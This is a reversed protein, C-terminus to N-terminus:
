SVRRLTPRRSRSVSSSSVTCGHDRSKETSRLRPLELVEETGVEPLIAALPANKAGLTGDVRRTPEHENLADAVRELDRRKDGCVGDWRRHEREDADAQPVLWEAIPETCAEGVVARMSSQRRRRGGVFYAPRAARKFSPNSQSIAAYHVNNEGATILFM